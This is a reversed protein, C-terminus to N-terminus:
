HGRTLANSQHSSQQEVCTTGYVTCLLTDMPGLGKVPHPIEVWVVLVASQLTAALDSSAAAIMSRGLLVRHVQGKGQGMGRLM